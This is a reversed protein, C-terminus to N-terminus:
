ATKWWRRVMGFAVLAFGLVPLTGPEPVPDFDFTTNNGGIGVTLGDVYGNFQDTPDSFGVQLSLGGIDGAFGLLDGNVIAAAPTMAALCASFSVVNTGGDGGCLGDGDYWGGALANWSQWTNLATAGQDPLLPNGTSPTQYPPEFVLTDYANPGALGTSVFLELFPFQSLNNKTAYSFYSLATISSLLTGGGDYSTTNLIEGGGGGMTGNGTALNASGTGLPPTAPGTVMAGVATTNTGANFSDDLNTFAWTGMSDPTVQITGASAPGLPLGIVGGFGALFATSLAARRIGSMSYRRFPAGIKLFFISSSFYFSTKHNDVLTLYIGVTCFARYEM